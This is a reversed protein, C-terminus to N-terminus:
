HLRLELIWNGRKSELVHLVFMFGPVCFGLDLLSFGSGLVYFM